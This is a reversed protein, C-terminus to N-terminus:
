EREKGGSKGGQDRKQKLEQFHKCLRIKRDMKNQYQNLTQDFWSLTYNKWSDPFPARSLDARLFSMVAVVLEASPLNSIFSSKPAMEDFLREMGRVRKQVEYKNGYWKNNHLSDVAKQYKRSVLIDLCDRTKISTKELGKQVLILFKLANYDSKLPNSKQWIMYMPLGDEFSVQKVDYNLHLLGYLESAQALEKTCKIAKKLYEKTVRPEIEEFIGQALLFGETLADVGLLKDKRLGLSLGKVTRKISKYQQESLFGAIFLQPLLSCQAFSTLYAFGTQSATIPRSQMLMKRTAITWLSLQSNRPHQPEQFEDDFDSTVTPM